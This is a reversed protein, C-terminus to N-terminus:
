ECLSELLGQAVPSLRKRALARAKPADNIHELPGSIMMGRVAPHRATLRAMKNLVTFGRNIKSRPTRNGEISRALYQGFRSYLFYDDDGVQFRAEAFFDPFNKELYQTVSLLRPGPDETLAAKCKNMKLRWVELPDQCGNRPTVPPVVGRLAARVSLGFANRHLLEKDTACLMSAAPFKSARFLMPIMSHWTGGPRDRGGQDACEAPARNRNHLNRIKFVNHAFRRHRPRPVAAAAFDSREPDFWPSAILV